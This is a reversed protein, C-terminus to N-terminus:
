AADEDELAARQRADWDRRAVRIAARRLKRSRKIERRIEFRIRNRSEPALARRLGHVLSAAQVVTERLVLDAFLPAELNPAPEPNPLEDEGLHTIVYEAHERPASRPAALRREIEDVEGRLSATEAHATSLERATQTRARVLAVALLLVAGVLGTLVTLLVWDPATWDDIVTGSGIARNM